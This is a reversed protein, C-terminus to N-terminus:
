SKVHLQELVHCQSSEKIEGQTRKLLKDKKLFTVMENALNMSM